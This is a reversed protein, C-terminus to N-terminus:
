HVHVREFATAKPLQYSSRVLFWNGITLLLVGAFVVSTWNMAKSTVPSFLPFSVVTCLLPYICLLAVNVFWGFQGLSFYRNAPLARRKDLVLLFIPLGYSVVVCLGASGYIANLVYAPSFALLTFAATIAASVLLSNLPLQLRPDVKTVFGIAPLGGSQAFSWFIRSLVTTINTTAQGFVSVYIIGVVIVFGRNNWADWCIQFIPAGGLPELLNQPNVTCFLLVIVMVFAGLFSLVYSGVMVQPIRRHPEPVEEAMHTATDPLSIAALGPLLNLFFTWGDPWGSENVINVFVTRASAKPQAKALLVIIIFVVAANIFVVFFKNIAPYIKILYSNLLVSIVCNMLAFLFIQYTQPTFSSNIVTITGLIFQGTLVWGGALALIWTWLTMAGDLYTLFRRYKPPALISTWYTQGAVHPFASSLEALSLTPLGQVLAAFLFCWFFFPNGGLGLTFVMFGSISIPAASCTYQMGLVSWLSFRDDDLDTVAHIQVPGSDMQEVDATTVDQGTVEKQYDVAAM